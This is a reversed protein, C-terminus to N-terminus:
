KGISLLNQAQEIRAEGTIEDRILLYENESLTRATEPSRAQEQAGLFYLKPGREIRKEGTLQNEVVIYQTPSLLLGNRRTVRNIPLIFNVGPGNIVRRGTLSEVLLQEDDKLFYFGLM